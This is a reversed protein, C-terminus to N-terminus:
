VGERNRTSPGSMRVLPFQANAAVKASRNATAVGPSMNGRITVVALEQIWAGAMRSDAVIWRRHGDRGSGAGHNRKQRRNRRAQM